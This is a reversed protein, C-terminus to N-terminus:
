HFIQNNADSPLIIKIEGKIQYQDGKPNIETEILKQKWLEEAIGYYIGKSIQERHEENLIQSVEIVSGVNKIEPKIYQIIHNPPLNKIDDLEKLLEINYKNLEEFNEITKNFMFYLFYCFLILILIISGGIILLLNM